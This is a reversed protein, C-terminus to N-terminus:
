SLCVIRAWQEQHQQNKTKQHLIFEYNKNKKNYMSRKTTLQQKRNHRASTREPILKDNNACLTSMRQKSFLQHSTSTPFKTDRYSFPLAM